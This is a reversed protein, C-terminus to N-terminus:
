GSVLLGLRDAAKETEAWLAELVPAALQKAATVLAEGALEPSGVAYPPAPNYELSLQILKATEEGRLLSAIQLGFDIGATIGGGTIRNRDIVVREQGVEVGLRTLQDRVAWHSAARYGQLLGAAALLLSGTCVSTVFRATEGHQQLFSLVARDSMVAAQGPGGPVCLVDLPPCDAFTQTPLLTLGEATQIPDLTKWILRIQTDPMFAFVQYPGMVDLQTLGPFLLLGITTPQAPVVTM